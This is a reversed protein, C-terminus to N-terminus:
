RSRSRNALVAAFFDRLISGSSYPSYDGRDGGNGVALALVKKM